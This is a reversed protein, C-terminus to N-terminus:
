KIMNIIYLIIDRNNLDTLSLVTLLSKIKVLFQLLHDRALVAANLITELWMLILNRSNEVSLFSCRVFYDNTLFDHKLSM